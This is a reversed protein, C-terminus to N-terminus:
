VRGSMILGPSMRLFGEPAGKPYFLLFTGFHCKKKLKLFFSTQNNKLNCGM